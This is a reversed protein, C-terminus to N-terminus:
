VKLFEEVNMVFVTAGGVTIEVPLESPSKRGGGITPPTTVKARRHCNREIIKMVSPVEEEKVGIFVTSNGGKLFGGSSSLLTVPYGKETLDNRLNAFDRSQLVAIILKM